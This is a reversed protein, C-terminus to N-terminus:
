RVGGGGCVCWTTNFSVTHQDGTKYAVIDMTYNTRANDDSGWVYEGLAGSYTRTQLIILRSIEPVYEHWKQHPKPQLKFYIM